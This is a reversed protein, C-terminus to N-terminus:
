VMGPAVEELGRASRRNRYCRIVALWGATKGIHSQGLELIEVTFFRNIASLRGFFLLLLSRRPHCGLRLDM